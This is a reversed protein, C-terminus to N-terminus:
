NAPLSSKEVLARPVNNILLRHVGVGTVEM